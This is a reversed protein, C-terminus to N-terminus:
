TESIKTFDAIQLMIDRLLVLIGLRNDRLDKDPSNVLVAEFFADLAPQFGAMIQMAKNYDEAMIADYIAQRNDHLAKYLEKEEAQELKTINVKGSPPNEKEAIRLINVGRRFCALLAEAQPKQQLIFDSIAKTREALILMNDGDSDKANAFVAQVVDHAIGGGVLSRRLRERLFDLIDRLQQPTDPLDAVDKHWLNAAQELFPTLQIHLNHGLLLRILSIGCRRLAFPDKSGTPKEGALWMGTLFDLRDAIGLIAAITNEPLNDKAGAPLYHQSITAAIINDEGSEIAYLAGMVGQLDPFESVMQSGLDLKALSAARQLKKQEKTEIKIEKGLDISLGEIHPIRVKISGLKNHFIMKSLKDNFSALGQKKDQEIFFRADSLRARGVRIYGQRVIEPIDNRPMDAVAIFYPAPNGTKDALVIYKQHYRLVSELVQHPLALFEKDIEGLVAQPYESNAAMEDLLSDAQQPILLDELSHKALLATIQQEIKQRRNEIIVFNDAMIKVYNKPEALTFAPKINAKDAGGIMGGYLMFHGRSKDTFVLEAAGGINLSGQIAKGNFIAAIGQLPRGFRFKQEGFRMSKRWQLGQLLDQIIVALLDSSKQPPTIIEAILYKGKPTEEQTCASYEIGASQLFGKIAAEPADIAPGRRKEIKEATSTALDAVHFAMRRPTCFHALEGHPLNQKALLSALNARAQAAVAVINPLDEHQLELFFDAM